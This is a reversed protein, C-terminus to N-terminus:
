KFYHKKFALAENTQKNKMEYYKLYKNKLLDKKLCWM